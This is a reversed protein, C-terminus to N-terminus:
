AARAARPRRPSSGGARPPPRRRHAAPAARACRRCGTRGARAPAGARRARRAARRRRPAAARDHGVAHALHDSAPELRELGVVRSTSAIAPTTPRGNVIAPTARMPPRPARSRRAPAGAPARRGAARPAGRRARAAVAEGVRDHAVGDVVLQRGRQARPQVRGDGRTSCSDSSAPPSAVAASAARCASAAARQPASGCGAQSRDSSAARSAARAAPARRPPPASRRRARPTRAPRRPRARGHPQLRRERQRGRREGRAVDVRAAGSGCRRPRRAGSRRAGVDVRAGREAERLDLLVSRDVRVRDGQELLREVSSGGRPCRAARVSRGRAEALPEVRDGVLRPALRQDVLAHRHGAPEAVVVRQDRQEGRGREDVPRGLAGRHAALGGVLHERARRAAASRAATNQARM